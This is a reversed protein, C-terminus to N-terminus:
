SISSYISYVVIPGEGADHKGPYQWAEYWSSFPSFRQFLLGAGILHQGKYANGEDHHRKM